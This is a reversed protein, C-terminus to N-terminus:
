IIAFNLVCNLVFTEAAPLLFIGYKAPNKKNFEDALFQPLQLHDIIKPVQDNCLLAMRSFGEAVQFCDGFWAKTEYLQAVAM